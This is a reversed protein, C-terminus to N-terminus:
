FFRLLLKRSITCHRKNKESAEVIEWCEEVSEGAGVEMAVHKGHNMAYIAIPVHLNWPTAIYVLDIDERECFQKWSDEKGSYLVPHHSSGKLSEKAAKAQETRIDCLANIAVGEIHNMRPVAASGRNGLGVYGIRVIDLKPAAYGSMNFVQGPSKGNLEPRNNETRGQPSTFGQLLGGAIGTGLLGTLKLFSRRNNNM